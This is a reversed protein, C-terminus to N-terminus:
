TPPAAGARRSVGRREDDPDERPSDEVGPGEALARETVDVDVDVDRSTASRPRPVTDAAREFSRRLDRALGAVTGRRPPPEADDDEALHAMSPFRTVVVHVLVLKTAAVVPIAVFMAPIGALAGAVILAVIVTIPHVSVSRAVVVPTILHNDVQQVVVMVVVVLVAQQLGGGVTLAILAGFVAGATPGILPVLNFVGTTVGVVAWFPLGILGLGIATATGVFLAVLLQGRFYSGVIRGIRSGVEVVEPRREPPLLRRLGSALRPLDALAYFAIIPGVTVAIGVHVVWSVVSGAGRLLGLVQAENASLFQRLEETVAEPQLDLRSGPPVGIRALQRNAWTQLSEAIGPLEDLLGRAQEALLPLVASLVIWTLVGGVVYSILTGLPRPVRRAHLWRVGPDLLYVMVVAIAVPPFLLGIPERLLRWAAVLLLVAGIATWVRLASRVLRDSRVDM